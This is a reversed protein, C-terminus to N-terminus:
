DSPTMWGSVAGSPDKVIAIRGVSPVDWPERLIEGGAQRVKEARADIDDVAIYGMWHEPVGAFEGGAMAFIGGVMDDGVKCVYYPEGEGMPMSDYTWGLTDGYFKRAKETDRTMLENWHFHGHTTM